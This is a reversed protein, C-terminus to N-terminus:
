PSPLSASPSHPQSVPQHPIAPPRAPPEEDLLLRATTRGLAEAEAPAGHVHAVSGPGGDPDLLEARIRLRGDPLRTTVVSAATACDGRLGALVAREATLGLRTPAHDFPALLAAAAHDGARHEVVIVGAGAAPPWYEPSWIETARGALGLRALGAHAVILADLGAGGTDLLALRTDLNGRIPVPVLHPLRSRLLAARRPASTGVRAGAPLEALPVPTRGTPCAPRVVADRVDERPLAAGLVIGPSRDHAGPLDKACSITFDVEGALLLSDARRTFAGKGGIEALPGPHRDGLSVTQVVILPRDPHTRRFRRAFAETQALAMPSPRTALRVAGDTGRGRTM